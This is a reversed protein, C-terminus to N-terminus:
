IACQMTEEQSPTVRRGYSRLLHIHFLKKHTKSRPTWCIWEGAFWGEVCKRLKLLTRLAPRSHAYHRM